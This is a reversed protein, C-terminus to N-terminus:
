NAIFNYGNWTGHIHKTLVVSIAPNVYARMWFAFTFDVGTGIDVSNNHPVVIKGNIGDFRYAKNPQNFRDPAPIAGNVTGHNGNGSMDQANGDFPWDGVAGGPIQANVIGMSGILLLVIAKM